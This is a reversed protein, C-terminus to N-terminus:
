FEEIDDSELWTGGGNEQVIDSVSKRRSGWEVNEQAAAAAARAELDGVEDDGLAEGGEATRAQFSLCSFLRHTTPPPRQVHGAGGGASLAKLVAGLEQAIM